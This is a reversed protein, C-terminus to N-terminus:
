LRVGVLAALAAWTSVHPVYKGARVNSAFGKSIGAAQAIDTLKVGQLRPLIERRYLDPDYIVEPHGQEWDRLARKRASIAAGRSARLAPTQAPDADICAGCRTHRPNTVAGGCDPCSFLTPAMVDDARQRARKPVDGMARRAKVLAQATTARSRTLPSTPQYKGAMAQGLQSVVHEAIPAVAKAWLPLTEVLSHTLPAVIRVHGEPTETFDVKRFTRAALLDLVYGDVMPRVPEILDLAMSDRARADSHVIGFGPDLGVAQCANTAESEVLRYVYNLIANTPREAKRNASMSALVSRRGEYRDWHPPVRARDRTVFTPVCEPRGAWTQWYLAAASAEVQRAEAVTPVEAMVAALGDIVDAADVAGFRSRLLTAQGALKQGLLTRVIGIGVPEGPAAAQIRRLRADDATRPTSGLVTAGTHDLVLVGIGLRRCWSLADLTVTGTGSLIALRRLGHTAKDFRRSRGYPGLGDAVVLAGRNVTVRVVGDAV